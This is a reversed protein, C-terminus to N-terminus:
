VRYADTGITTSVLFTTEFSAAARTTRAQAGNVTTWLLRSVRGPAAPVELAHSRRTCRIESTQRDM